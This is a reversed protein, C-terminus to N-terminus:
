PRDAGQEELITARRLLARAKGLWAISIATNDAEVAHKMFDGAKRRCGSPQNYWTNGM